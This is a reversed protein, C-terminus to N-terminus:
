TETRRTVRGRLPTPGADRSPPDQDQAPAPVHITYKVNQAPDNTWPTKHFTIVKKGDFIVDRDGNDRSDVRYRGPQLDALTWGPAGRDMAEKFVSEEIARVEKVLIQVRSEGPTSPQAISEAVSEVVAARIQDSVDYYGRVCDLRKAKLKRVVEDAIAEPNM